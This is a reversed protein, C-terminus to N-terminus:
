IYGDPVTEGLSEFVDTRTALIASPRIEEGPLQGRVVRVKAIRIQRDSTSSESLYCSLLCGSCDAHVRTEDCEGGTAVVDDAQVAIHM